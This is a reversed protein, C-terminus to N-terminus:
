PPPSTLHSPPAALDGSPPPGSLGAPSAAPALPSATVGTAPAPTITPGSPGAPGPPFAAPAPGIGNLCNDYYQERQYQAPLGTTLNSSSFGPGSFPTSRTGSVYADSQYVVGPNQILMAQDASQRCATIQAASARSQPNSATQACGALALVALMPVAIAAKM